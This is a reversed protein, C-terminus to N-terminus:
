GMVKRVTSANKQIARVIITEGEEGKFASRVDDESMVVAVNFNTSSMTQQGGGTIAKNQATQQAPTLIDVREDPRKNFLVTQSDTSGNGSPLISGGTAFGLVAGLGGGGSLGTVPAGILSGLLKLLVQQTALKLLQAFLDAFFERINLVGTKAFEVIADAASSAAGVVFDGLAVGLESASMIASSISSKFGGSLTGAALDANEQLTRLKDNYMDLSLIGDDFAQTLAITGLELQEQPGLVDELIGGYLKAIELAAVNEAVLAKETDTLQRKLDNEFSLIENNIEKQLGFQKELEITQQLESLLQEFTKKSGGGGGGGGGDAPSAPGGPTAALDELVGPPPENAINQRARDIVATIAPAVLNSLGGLVNEIKGGEFVTTFGNVFADGAAQGETAATGVFRPLTQEGIETIAGTMGFFELAKDAGLFSLLGNLARIVINIAKIAGNAFAEFGAILANAIGMAVAAASGPLSQFAAIIGVVVGVVVRPLFTIADIMGTVAQFFAQAIIKAGAVIFDYAAGAADKIMNWIPGAFPAIAEGMIQFAAVTFDKLSVIGDSTVKVSDAFLFFLSTVAIVGAIVAGIPNALMVVSLAAFAGTLIRVVGTLFPFTRALRAMFGESTASAAALRATSSAQANQAATVSASLAVTRGAIINNASEAASLRITAATLRDRAAQLGIFLGTQASRARGNQFAAVSEAYEAQANRLTAAVGVSRVQINLLRAKTDALTATTAAVSSTSSAVQIASFRALAVGSKTIAAIYGSIISIVKAGFATLLAIGILALVKAIPELAFSVKIIATALKGSINVADDIADVLSLLNNRAVAFAQDFTPNTKAFLADIGGQAAQIAKFVIDATLKGETGLKRLTGRTVNGFQQTTNLYDVIQDAVVPLQELVSRLEDGSLRDSALGQGLQILAANAERASAGSVVAAKQLTETVNIVDQQSVGLNRAALAVRSYVDATAEVSSRSRNASLFLSDQVAELNATSNSTIQLRNEMNTLANTLNALGTLLGAGGIVFLARQMLFIGRTARNAAFGINDIRKKVALAGRDIIRITLTETAM